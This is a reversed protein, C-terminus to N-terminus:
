TSLLGNTILANIVTGLVDALEDITTSDGDLVKDSAINTLTWGSNQVVPTAGHFGLKQAAATGIMSGNTTDLILDTGDALTIDADLTCSPDNNSTFTIFSQFAAGDVDYAGLSLTDAATDGSRWEAGNLAIANDLNLTDTGTTYSFQADNSFGSAGDSLQIAGAGGSAGGGGTDAEFTAVGATTFKMVYGNAGPVDVPLTITYSGTASTSGQLTVSDATTGDFLELSGATASAVGLALDSTATPDAAAAGQLTQGAGIALPTIADTGSGLLVSNDTLTAAGTGGYAAGLESNSSAEGLRSM